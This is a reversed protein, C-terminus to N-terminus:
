PYATAEPTLSEVPPPTATDEIPPPEGPTPTATVLELTPAPTPTLTPEPTATETPILTATPSPTPTATPTQTPTSTPTVTPQLLLLQTRHELTVPDEEPTYPNDPGYILLRLTVPGENDLRTTDWEALFSNEVVYPQRGSIGGWGGPNQGLGYDVQYGTYNPGAATGIV